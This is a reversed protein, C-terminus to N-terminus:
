WRRLWSDFEAGLLHWCFCVTIQLNPYMIFNHPSKTEVRMKRGVLKLGEDSTPRHINNLLYLMNKGTTKTWAVAERESVGRIVQRGVEGRSRQTGGVQWLSLMSRTLDSGWKLGRLASM